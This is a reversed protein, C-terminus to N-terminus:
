VALAEVNKFSDKVILYNHLLESLSNTAEKLLAHNMPYLGILLERERIKEKLFGEKLSYMIRNVCESQNLHGTIIQQISLRKLVELDALVVLYALIDNRKM